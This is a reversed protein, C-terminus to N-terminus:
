RATSRRLLMLVAGAAVLCVSSPEPVSNIGSTSYVAGSDAQVNFSVANGASDKVALGTVELTNMFDAEAATVLNGNANELRSFAIFILRYNFYENAPVVIEPLLFEEDYTGESLLDVLHPHHTFGTQGEARVSQAVEAGAPTSGTGTWDISGTLRVAPQWRYTTETGGPVTLMLRDWFLAAANRVRSTNAPMTGWQKSSAKLMGFSASASLNYNAVDGSQSVRSDTVSSSHTLGGLNHGGGPEPFGSGGFRVEVYPATLTSGLAATATALCFIAALSKNVHILAFGHRLRSV